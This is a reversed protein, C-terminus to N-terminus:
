GSHGWPKDARDAGIVNAQAVHRWATMRLPEALAARVRVKCLSPDWGGGRGIDHAAPM